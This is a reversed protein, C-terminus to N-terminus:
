LSLVVKKRLPSEARMHQPQTHTPAWGHQGEPYIRQGMTARQTQSRRKHLRGKERKKEQNKTKFGVTGTIGRSQGGGVGSWHIILWVTVQVWPYLHHGMVQLWPSSPNREPRM